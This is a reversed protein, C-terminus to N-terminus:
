AWTALTLTTKMGNGPSTAFDLRGGLHRAREEMNMLGFGRKRLEDLQSQALGQGNDQILLMVKGGGTSASVRFASAQAHKVTNSLCEQVIRFVSIAKEPSLGGPWDTLDCTAILGTAANVREFLINLAEELGYRELQNPYLDRSLGRVQELASDVTQVLDTDTQAANQRFVRNRIFLLYQGINDHLERAIRQRENEQQGILEKTFQAKLRDARRQQVIHWGFWGLVLAALAGLAGLRLWGALKEARLQEHEKAAEAEALAREKAEVQYLTTMVALTNHYNQQYVSDKLALYMRHDQLAGQHDGRVARLEARLKYCEFLWDNSGLQLAYVFCSDIHRAANPWDELSVYIEALHEHLVTCAFTTEYQDPYDLCQKMYQLALNFDGVEHAINALNDLTYIIAYNHKRRQAEKLCAEMLAKGGEFNGRLAMNFGIEVNVMLTDGKGEDIAAKKAEALYADSREADGMAQLLHSSEGAVRVIWGYWKQSRAVDLARGLDALGADFIGLTGYARGRFAYAAVHMTDSNADNALEVLTNALDLAEFPRQDIIQDYAKARQWFEETQAVLTM